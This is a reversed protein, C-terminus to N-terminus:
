PEKRKKRSKKRAAAAENMERTLQAAVILRTTEILGLVRPVPIPGHPGKTIHGYSKPSLYMFVHETIGFREILSNLEQTIARVEDDNEM